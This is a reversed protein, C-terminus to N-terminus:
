KVLEGYQSSNIVERIPIKAADARVIYQQNVRAWPVLRDGDIGYYYSRWDNIQLYPMSSYIPVIGMGGGIRQFYFDAGLIWPVAATFGTEPQGVVALGDREMDSILGEDSLVQLAHEIGNPTSFLMISHRPFIERLQLLDSALASDTANREPSWTGRRVHWAIYPQEPPPTQISIPFSNADLLFGAPISRTRGTSLVHLLYPALSYVPPDYAGSFLTLAPNWAHQEEVRLPSSLMHQVVPKPLLYRALAVQDHAFNTQATADLEGWDARRDGSDVIDFEVRHGGAELFRALMIVEFLNGYTPPSVANDNVVRLRTNPNIALAQTIAAAERHVRRRISYTGRLGSRASLLSRGLPARSLWARFRVKGRSSM